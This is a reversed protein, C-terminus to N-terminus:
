MAIAAVCDVLDIYQHIPRFQKETNEKPKKPKFYVNCKLYNENETLLEDIRKSVRKCLTLIEKENYIDIFKKLEDEDVLERNQLSNELSYIALFINQESKVTELIGM